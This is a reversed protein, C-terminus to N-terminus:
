TAREATTVAVAGESAGELPVRQDSDLPHAARARAESAACARRPPSPVTTMVSFLSASKDPHFNVVAIIQMGTQSDRATSLTVTVSDLRFVIPTVPLISPGRHNSSKDSWHRWAPVKAAAAARM